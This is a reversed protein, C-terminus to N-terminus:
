NKEQQKGSVHSSLDIRDLLGPVPERLHVHAQVVLGIESTGGFVKIWSADDLGEVEPLYMFGPQEDSSGMEPSM